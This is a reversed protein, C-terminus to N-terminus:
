EVLSSLLKIIKDPSDSEKCLEWLKNEQMSGDECMNYRCLRYRKEDKQLLESKVLEDLIYRVLTLVIPKVNESVGAYELVKKPTFSVCNGRAEKVARWLGTAVQQLVTGFNSYASSTTRTRSRSMSTM